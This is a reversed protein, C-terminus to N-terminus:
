VDTLKVRFKLFEPLIGAKTWDMLKVLSSLMEKSILVILIDLYDLTFITFHFKSLFLKFAM